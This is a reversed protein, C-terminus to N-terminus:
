KLMVYDKIKDHLELLESDLIDDGINKRLISIREDVDILNGRVKEAMEKIEESDM